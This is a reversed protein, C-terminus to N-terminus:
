LSLFFIKWAESYRELPWNQAFFCFQFWLELAPSLCFANPTINEPDTYTNYCWCTSSGCSSVCLALAPKGTWNSPISNLAAMVKSRCCLAPPFQAPRTQPALWISARTGKRLERLSCCMSAKKIPCHCASTVSCNRDTRSGPACLSDDRWVSVACCFIFSCLNIIHAWNPPSTLFTTINLSSLTGQWSWRLIEEKWKCTLNSLKSKWFLFFFIMICSMWCCITAM